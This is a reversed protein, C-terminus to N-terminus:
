LSAAFSRARFARPVARAEDSGPAARAARDRANAVDVLLGDFLGQVDAERGDGTARAQDEARRRAGLLEVRQADLVALAATLQGSAFLRSSEDLAAATRHRALSTAVLPDLESEREGVETETVAELAAPDGGAAPDYRLTVSAVMRRGPEPPLAVELLVTKHQRAALAGLPVLLRSGEWHHDRAFVQGLEVGPAFTIEAVASKGVVNRISEAERELVGALDAADRVFHHNGNSAFALAGLVQENYGVGLGITTIGVGADRADTAFRGLGAADVVGRNSDGDSLVVIRQVRDSGARLEKRMDHMARVLGCSLCTNGDAEIRRIAAILRPRSAADLETAAFLTQADDAFTVVSMRDGDPAREIWASAAAVASALRAGRMSGSRDIVLATDGAAPRDGPADGAVVDVLLYSRRPGDARVAAHGLRAELRVARDAIPQSVMTAAAPSQPAHAVSAVPRRAAGGPPTVLYVTTCSALMGCVCWLLLKELTV